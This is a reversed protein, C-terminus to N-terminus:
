NSLNIEGFSNITYNEVISTYNSTTSKFESLDRKRFEQKRYEALKLLKISYERDSLNNQINQFFLTLKNKISLLLDESNWLEIFESEPTNSGHDSEFIKSVFVRELDGNNKLNTTTPFYKILSKRRKSFIPNQFDVLTLCLLFKSSIINQEVFQKGIEIDEFAREPVMFCFHTDGDKKTGNKDDEVNIGLQESIERYVKGNMNIKSPPLIEYFPDINLVAIEITDIDIFFSSPLQLDVDEVRFYELTSSILNVSTSDIIQSVFPITETKEFSMERTIRSKTWRRIGTKVISELNEAGHVKSFIPSTQFESDQDFVERPISNSQSHWHGWPLKLEKMVLGGNVHSDFPGKGRARKDFATFSNGAWGWLNHKREFFHFSNDKNSWSILQLLSTESKLNPVTSLLIEAPSSEDEQWTFVIRANLGFNPHKIKFQGGEAILFMKRLSFKNSDINEIERLLSDLTNSQIVKLIINKSFHDGLNIIESNTM